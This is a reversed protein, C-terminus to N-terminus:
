LLQPEWLALNVVVASLQSFVAHYFLREGLKCPRMDKEIVNKTYKVQNNM